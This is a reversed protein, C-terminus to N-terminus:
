LIVCTMGTCKNTIYDKNLETKTLILNESHKGPVPPCDLEYRSLLMFRGVYVRGGSSATVGMAAIGAGAGPGAGVGAAAGTVSGAGGVASKVGQASDSSYWGGGGALLGGTTGGEKALKTLTLQLEM